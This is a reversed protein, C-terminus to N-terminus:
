RRWAVFRADARRGATRAEGRGVARPVHGEGRTEAVDEVQRAARVRRM